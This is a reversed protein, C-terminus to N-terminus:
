KIKKKKIKKLIRCASNGFGLIYYSSNKIIFLSHIYDSIIDLFNIYYVHLNVKFFKILFFNVKQSIKQIIEIILFSKVYKNPIGYKKTYFKPYSTVLYNLLNRQYINKALQFSWARGKIYVTFKM